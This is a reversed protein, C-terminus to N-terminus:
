VSLLLLVKFCIARLYHKIRYGVDVQWGSSIKVLIAVFLIIVMAMMM